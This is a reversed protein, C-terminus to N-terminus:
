FFSLSLAMIIFLVASVLYYGFLFQATAKQSPSFAVWHYTITLSFLAYLVLIVAAVLEGTHVFLLHTDTIGTM